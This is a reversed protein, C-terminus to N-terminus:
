GGARASWWRALDARQHPLPEATPKRERVARLAADVGLGERRAIVGAAVTASRQWGARCHLYVTRGADLWAEVEGVARDLDHVRLGGYDVLPLRREEIAHRELARGVDAREGDDYECDECLNFLADVEARAIRAVDAADTPYAGVLLREGVPAFGFREFWASV